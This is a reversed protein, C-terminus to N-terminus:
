GGFGSDFLADVSVAKTVGVGSLKPGFSDVNGDDRALEPMRIDCRSSSVEIVERRRGNDLCHLKSLPM